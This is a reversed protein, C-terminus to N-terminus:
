SYRAKKSRKRTGHRKRKLTDLSMISGLFGYKELTKPNSLKEFADRFASSIIEIKFTRKAVDNKDVDIICLHFANKKDYYETELKNFVVNPMLLSLGLQHYDFITGFFHFLDYVVACIGLFPNNTGNYIQDRIRLFCSVLLVLCYSGMGGEYVMHLSRSRLFQKLMIVLPKVFVHSKIEM